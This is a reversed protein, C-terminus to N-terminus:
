ISFNTAAAVQAARIASAEAIAGTDGAGHGSAKETSKRLLMVFFEESIDVAM